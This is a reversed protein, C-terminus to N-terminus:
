GVKYQHGRWRKTTPWWKVGWRFSWLSEAASLIQNQCFLLTQKGTHLTHYCPVVKMGLPSKIGMHHLCDPCTLLTKKKDVTSGGRNVDVCGGTSSGGAVLWSNVETEGLGKGVSISWLKEKHQFSVCSIRRGLELKLHHFHKSPVILTLM